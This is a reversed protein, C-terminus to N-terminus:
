PNTVKLENPSLLFASYQKLRRTAPGNFVIGDDWVRFISGCCPCTVLGMNEYEEDRELICKKQPNYTCARDFAQYSRSSSRYIILGGYGYGEKEDILIFEGEQLGDLQTDLYFRANVYVYPFPKTDDECRIFLLMFLIIKLFININSTQHGRKFDVTRM